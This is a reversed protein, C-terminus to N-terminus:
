GQFHQRVKAAIQGDTMSDTTEIRVIREGLAQGELQKQLEGKAEGLGFILVADADRLFIIVEDYYTTLHADFRRDQRRSKISLSTEGNLATWFITRWAFQYWSSSDFSRRMWASLNNPAMNLLVKRSCKFKTSLRM